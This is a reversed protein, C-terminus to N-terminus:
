GCVGSDAARKLRANLKKKEAIVRSATAGSFCSTGQLLCQGSLKRVMSQDRQVARTVGMCSGPLTEPTTFKRIRIVLKEYCARHHALACREAINKLDRQESRWARWVPYASRSIAVQSATVAFATEPLFFVSLVTLTIMWIYLHNKLRM